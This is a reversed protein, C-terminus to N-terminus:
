SILRVFPPEIGFYMQGHIRKTHRESNNDRLTGRCIARLSAAQNFPDRRFMQNGVFPIIAIRDDILGFALTHRRHNRRAFVARGLPRVVFVQVFQPMQNFVREQVELAPAADGGSVGFVRGREEGGDLDPADSKPRVDRSSM